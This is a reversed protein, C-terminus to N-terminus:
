FCKLQADIALIGIELKTFLYVRELSDRVLLDITSVLIMKWCGSPWKAKKRGTMMKLVMSGFISFPVGESM